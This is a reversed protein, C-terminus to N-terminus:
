SSRWHALAARAIREILVQHEDPNLNTAKLSVVAGMIRDTKAPAMYTLDILQPPQDTTFPSCPRPHDLDARRRM